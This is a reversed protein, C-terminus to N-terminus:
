RKVEISVFKRNHFDPGGDAVSTVTRFQACAAELQRVQDGTFRMGVVESPVVVELYHQGNPDLLARALIEEVAIRAHRTPKNM